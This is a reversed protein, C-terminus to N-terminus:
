TARPQSGPVSVPQFHMEARGGAAAVWAYFSSRGIEIVECLRKVSWADKHDEVFQFRNM